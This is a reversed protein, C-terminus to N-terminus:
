KVREATMSKALVQAVDKDPMWGPVMYLGVGMIREDLQDMDSSTTHIPISGHWMRPVVGMLSTVSEDAHSFGDRSLCLGFGFNVVVSHGGISNIVQLVKRVFLGGPPVLVTDGGAIDVSVTDPGLNLFGTFFSDPMRRSGSRLPSRNLPGLIVAGHLFQWFVHDDGDFMRMCLALEQSLISLVPHISLLWEAYPRSNYVSPLACEQTRSSTIAHRKFKSPDDVKWERAHAIEALFAQRLKTAVEVTTHAVCFNGVHHLLTAYNKVNDTTLKGYVELQLQQFEDYDAGNVQAFFLREVQDIDKEMSGSKKQM